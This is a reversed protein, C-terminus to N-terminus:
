NKVTFLTYLERDLAPQLSVGTALIDNVMIRRYAAVFPCKPVLVYDANELGPAGGYFWPAGGTLPAFDEFLWIAVLSDTVYFQSGKEIGASALDAATETLLAESGGFLECHPYPTGNIKLVGPREVDDSYKAWIQSTADLHSEANLSRGRIITVYIEQDDPRAPVMAVYDSPDKSLHKLPSLLLNAGSPFILAAAAIATVLNLDLGSSSADSQVLDRGRITLLLLPLFAIWKPDNGFNQYTIYFFGPVLLILVIAERDHGARRLALYSIIAAITGGIFAPGAIIQDIPEGGSPRVKSTAVTLIDSIYGTWFPLGWLVTLVAMGALGIILAVVLARFSRGWALALITAPLLAAFFSVKILLLALGLLGLIVGDIIPYGAKRPPLVAIVLLIFSIAWAWRNYHMSISTDAHPGGYTLALVLLMVIVGFAYALKGSLRTMAAYLTVPLLILAVAIQGWLVALGAAMGTKMLTVIPLFALIGIPTIFDVHPTQGDKMRFLIDLLHYTDGEHTDLYLGGKLLGLGGFGAIFLLLVATLIFPNPRSM